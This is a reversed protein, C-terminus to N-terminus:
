AAQNPLRGRVLSRFNQDDRRHIDVSLRTNARAIEISAARASDECERAYAELLAADRPSLMGGIRRAQGARARWLMTESLGLKTVTLIVTEGTVLHQRRPTSLEISTIIGSDLGGISEQDTWIPEQDTTHPQAQLRRCVAQFPRPDAPLPLESLSFNQLSRLYSFIGFIDSCGKFVSCNKWVEL